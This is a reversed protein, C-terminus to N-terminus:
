EIFIKQLKHMESNSIIKFTFHKSVVTYDAVSKGIHCKYFDKLHLLTSMSLEPINVCVFYLSMLFKAYSDCICFSVYEKGQEYLSNKVNNVYYYRMLLLKYKQYPLLAHSM